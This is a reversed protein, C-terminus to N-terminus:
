ELITENMSSLDRIGEALSFPDEPEITIGANIKKVIKAAAGGAAMIIPKGAALYAATKSPIVYDSLDSSKLHVLLVDAAALFLPIKDIPQRDIFCVRGNLNKSKVLDKIRSEDSGSGVFVFLIKEDDTLNEAASIITDLGQVTGLNGAFMVVFKNIFDHEQRLNEIEVDDVALFLKEDIWHPMVSIKDEPVGKEILNKSAGKTVVFLSSAKRYVFKEICSIIKILLESKVLGSIVVSEPWIDQVDYVFPTRTIVSIVWAAIGVTLPPHWVYIVDFHREKLLSFPASIMFSVYNIIRGLSSKGHYPYEYTRTVDIGSLRTKQLFRLKYGPYLKGSPYNPFGTVVSVKHGLRQLEQALEVPKPIPEPDYYQSLILIHM